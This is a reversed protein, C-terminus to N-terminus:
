AVHDHFFKEGFPRWWQLFKPLKALWLFFDTPNKMPNMQYEGLVSTYGMIFELLEDNPLARRGFIVSLMVSNSFRQSAKHYNRPDRLIEYVLQKAELDQFPAFKVEAQRSNLITHMIKRQSRWKDAYPMMVIRAGGSMIGELMPREPRSSYIAARKELLDNVVRSSNLYVM